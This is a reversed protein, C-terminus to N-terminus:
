RNAAAACRSGGVSNGLMRQYSEGPISRPHIGGFANAAIGDAGSGGPSIDALRHGPFLQVRDAGRAGLGEGREIILVDAGSQRASIAAALGAPGGGVVAVDTEKVIM